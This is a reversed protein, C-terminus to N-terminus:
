SEFENSLFMKELNHAKHIAKNTSDAFNKIEGNTIQMYCDPRMINNDILYTNHSTLISQFDQRSNIINLIHESLDYHYFADFEDLYIFSINKNKHMWYFFLWLSLTGTSVVQDFPACQKNFKVGIIKKIGLSMECLTYQQGCERLFNEFEKLYNNEIIFDDLNENDNMVGMFENRRLSRFWLMGDVFNKLNKLPSGHEWYQTNNLIFKLVPVATNRKSIDLTKAESINNEFIGSTYNYKFLLKDGDYLEEDEVLMRNSDKKYRYIIDKGDFLFVYEFDVTGSEKSDGNLYYKYLYNATQNDTLHTTIDMIAAGLNSKGTNNKGYILMKNILGYKIFDQNFDYDHVTSFDLTISKKFNKFNKVTFKKLM